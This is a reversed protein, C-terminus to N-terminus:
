VQPSRGRHEDLKAVLAEYFEVEAIDLDECSLGSTVLELVNTPVLDVVALSDLSNLLKERVDRKHTEILAAWALVAALVPAEDGHLEGNECLFDPVDAWTRREEVSESTIGRVIEILRTPSISQM